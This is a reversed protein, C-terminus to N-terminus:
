VKSFFKNINNMIIANAIINIGEQLCSSPTSLLLGKKLSYSVGKLTGGNSFPFPCECCLPWTNKGKDGIRFVPVKATLNVISVDVPAVVTIFRHARYPNNGWPSCVVPHM